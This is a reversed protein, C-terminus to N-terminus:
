LTKLLGDGAVVESVRLAAIACVDVPFIQDVPIHPSLNCSVDICEVTDIHILVTIVVLHM